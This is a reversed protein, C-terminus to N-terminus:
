QGIMHEIDYPDNPAKVGDNNRESTGKIPLDKVLVRFTKVTTM